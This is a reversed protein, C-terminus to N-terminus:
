SVVLPSTDPSDNFSPQLQRTVVALFHPHRKRQVAAVPFDHAPHGRSFADIRGQNAIQHHLRHLVPKARIALRELRDFQEDIVVATVRRGFGPAKGLLQPELRDGRWHGTRLAVAHSLAKYFGQLPVVGFQGISRVRLRHHRLQGFPEIVVIRVVWV